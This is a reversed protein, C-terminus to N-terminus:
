RRKKRIKRLSSAKKKIRIRSEREAGSFSGDSDKAEDQQGEANKVKEECAEECEKKAKKKADDSM